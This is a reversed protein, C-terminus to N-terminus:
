ARSVSSRRTRLPDVLARQVRGPDADAAAEVARVREVEEVEDVARRVAARHRGLRQQLVHQGEVHHCHRHAQVRAAADLVRDDVLVAVAHARRLLDLLAHAHRLFEAALHGVAGLRAADVADALPVGIDVAVSRALPMAGFRRAPSFFTGCRTAAQAMCRGVRSITGPRRSWTACCQCVRSAARTGPVRLTGGIPRASRSTWDRTSAMSLATCAISPGTSSTACLPPQMM